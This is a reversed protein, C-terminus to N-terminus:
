FPLLTRRPQKWRPRQSNPAHGNLIREYWELYERAMRESSFNNRAYEHCKRSDYRDWNKIGEVLEQSNASLLGVEKTVLEPLSGYPTGFVPCGYFLSEIVALGFPEHWVIPFLLGRSGNILRAKEEGGVLGYFRVHRDLTLRFGMKFNLRRGGLVRLDQGAKRAISIAGKVNKNKWAAKGLFHFYTRPMSWDPKPYENWDLGNHVYAASQFRQAQDRSVFVTHVDLGEESSRNGHNTVIYPMSVEGDPQHHFHAIDHDRPLQSVISMGRRLHVVKAFDCSSGEKVLFTVQHGLRSLEKGLCWMVRETGGYTFM